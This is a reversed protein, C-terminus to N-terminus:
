RAWRTAAGVASKVTALFAFIVLVFVLAIVTIRGVLSFGLAEGMMWGLGNQIGFLESALLVGWALPVCLVLANGIEPTIAPLVVHIGRQWRSAGLTRSYEDYAKPLNAVARITSFLMVLGVALAILAISAASDAGFWLTFLPALALLPLMRLSNALGLTFDRVAAVTTCAFALLMGGTVGIALGCVVRGFSYALNEAIAFLANTV